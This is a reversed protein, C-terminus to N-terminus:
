DLKIIGNEEEYRKIEEKILYVIEQSGSREQEKAIYKIKELTTQDTRIIFQPLNSPM